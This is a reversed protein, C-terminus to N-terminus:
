CESAAKVCDQLAWASTLDAMADCDLRDIAELCRKGSACSQPMAPKPFASLQGCMANLIQQSSTPCSQLKKCAHDLIAFAFSGALGGNIGGGGLSGGGLGGFLDDPDAPDDPDDPLPDNGPNPPAPDPTRNPSPAANPDGPQGWPDLQGSRPPMPNTDMRDPAPAPMLQRKGGDPKDGAPLMMVVVAAVIALVALIIVILPWNRLWSSRDKQAKMRWQSTPRPPLIPQSGDVADMSDRVTTTTVASVSNSAPVPAHGDAHANRFATPQVSAIVLSPLPTAAQPRGARLM